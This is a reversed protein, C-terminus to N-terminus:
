KKHPPQMPGQHPAHHDLTFSSPTENMGLGPNSSLKIAEDIEEFVRQTEHIGPFACEYTNAAYQEDSQGHAANVPNLNFRNHRGVSYPM